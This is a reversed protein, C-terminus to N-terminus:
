YKASYRPGQSPSSFPHDYGSGQGYPDDYVTTRRDDEPEKVEWNNM